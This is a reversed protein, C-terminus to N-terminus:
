RGTGIAEAQAQAEALADAPSVGDRVVREMQKGLMDGVEPWTSVPPRPYGNELSKAVAATVPDDALIPDEWAAKLAPMNSFIKYWEIQQDKESMWQAFKWGGDANKADTPVLWVGGGTTSATTGAPSVPNEAIEMHEKMWDEGNADRFWSFFWPGSDYLIANTGNTSWAVTDLFAPGDASSLGSNILGAWFELAELNEPTDITWETHDANMLSGGNAASLVGLQYGTYQDWAVALAVPYEVGADKLAQAVEVTEDWTTPIELGNEAMLDSRYYTFNAYNYWPVGYSVGDSVASQWIAEFFDDQNVLGEPVPQFGGTALIAPADESMVFMLDPTTGGTIAATVKSKFETNPIETLAMDVDPYKSKFKEFMQPLEAGDAGETWVEIRGTPAEDSITEGEDGTAADSQGPADSRGCGALMTAALAVTVGIPMIRGLTSHKM